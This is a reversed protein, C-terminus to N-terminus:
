WGLYHPPSTKVFSQHLNQDYTALFGFSPEVNWAGCSINYNLTIHYKIDNHYNKRIVSRHILLCINDDWNVKLEDVKQYTRCGLM